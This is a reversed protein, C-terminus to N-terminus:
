NVQWGTKAVLGTGTWKVQRGTKAVLGTGTLNVQWGTKVVVAQAPMAMGAKAKVGHRSARTANAGNMVMHALIMARAAPVARYAAVGRSQM